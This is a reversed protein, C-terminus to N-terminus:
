VGDCLLSSVQEIAWVEIYQEGECDTIFDFEEYVLITNSACVTEFEDSVCLEIEGTGLYDSVPALIPFSSNLGDWSLTIDPNDISLTFSLENLTNDSDVIVGLDWLQDISVLSVSGNVPIEIQSPIETIEPAANCIADVCNGDCDYGEEPGNGNVVGCEFV